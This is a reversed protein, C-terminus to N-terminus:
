DGVGYVSLVYVIIAGYVAAVSLVVLGGTSWWDMRGYELGLVQDRHVAIRRRSGLTPGGWGVLSDDHVRVDRLVMRERLPDAESEPRFTIRANGLVLTDSRERPLPVPASQWRICASALLAVLLLLAVFPTRM